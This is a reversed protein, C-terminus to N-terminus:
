PLTVELIDSDSSENNMKDVARLYFQFTKNLGDVYTQLGVVEHSTRTIIEPVERTSAGKLRYFLRYGKVDEESNRDWEVEASNTSVSVQRLGRPEEPSESDPFFDIAKSGGADDQATITISRGKKWSVSATFVNNGDLAAKKDGVFVTLVRNTKGRLVVSGFNDLYADLVEVQIQGATTDSAAALLTQEKAKIAEGAEAECIKLVGAVYEKINPDELIIDKLTAYAQEYDGSYYYSMGMNLKAPTALDSRPKQDLFKKYLDIASDFDKVEYSRNAQYYLSESPSVIQSHDMTTCGSTALLVVILLPFRM